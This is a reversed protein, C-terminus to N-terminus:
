FSVNCKLHTLTNLNKNKDQLVFTNTATTKKPKLVIIESVTFVSNKEKM